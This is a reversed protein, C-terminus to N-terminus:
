DKPTQSRKRRYHGLTTLFQGVRSQLVGYKIEVNRLGDPLVLPLFGVKCAMLDRMLMIVFSSFLV